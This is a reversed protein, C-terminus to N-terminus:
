FDVFYIWYNAIINAGVWCDQPNNIEGMFEQLSGYIISDCDALAIESIEKQSQSDLFDKDYNSRLLAIVRVNNKITYAM